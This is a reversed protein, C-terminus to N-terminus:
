RGPDGEVRAGVVAEAEIEVLYEEGILRAEVLSNAPRVDAFREGHARAVAEWDAADAVFIRTRVVDSLSGGLSRLAGEIKDIVFHTQSAVDAGGILRDRHSATTGSVVIRDGARVARCYGAMEEWPTASFARRRGGPSREVPYPAPLEDLHHSLDGSATLFPERRYEDGCDGPVPALAACAAEIEDRGTEDIELELMSLTEAIHDSKGLRAGVIVAGVAPEDLVFRAAVQPLSVGLRRAVRDLAELLRQFADWGGVEAIFRRYKMQSWTALEDATPDAAGLQRATLLGGALTGYALLRVGRERCLRSMGGAARRDLVSFSVQNSVVDIGSELVLRLHATDFNTLGLHGILGEECLEALHFLADLYAPDGYSWAHFQMLDVRETRLRELSREVAERVTTRDVPGPAPVWKTLIEIGRGGAAVFEGVIEEASGYHDAMDFTTLGAEVYRGLAEVAAVRDVSRGDREMDAIQWLGTVVPAISLDDALRVRRM